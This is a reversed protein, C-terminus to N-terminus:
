QPLRYGRRPHEQRAATGGLVGSCGQKKLLSIAEHVETGYAEAWEKSRFPYTASKVGDSKGPPGCAQMSHRDNIGIIIAVFVPKQNALSQEVWKRLEGKCQDILGTSQRV